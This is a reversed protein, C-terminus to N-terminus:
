LGAQELLLYVEEKNGGSEIVLRVTDMAVMGDIRVPIRELGKELCFEHQFVHEADETATRTRYAASSQSNLLSTLSSEVRQNSAVQQLELRAEILALQLKAIHARLILDSALAPLPTQLIDINDNTKLFSASSAAQLTHSSAPSLQVETQPQQVTKEAGTDDTGSTESSGSEKRRKAFETVRGSAEDVHATESVALLNGKKLAKRLDEHEKISFHLFTKTSPFSYGNRFKWAYGIDAAEKKLITVEEFTTLKVLQPLSSKIHNFLLIKSNNLRELRRQNSWSQTPSKLKNAIPNNDLREDETSEESASEPDEEETRKRKRARNQQSSDADSDLSSDGYESDSDTGSDSDATGFLTEMAEDDRRQKPKPTTSEESTELFVCKLNGDELAQKLETHQAQTFRRITQTSTIGRANKKEPFDYGGRCDWKYGYKAATSPAIFVDDISSVLTNSPYCSQIHQLLLMRSEIERRRKRNDWEEQKRRQKRKRNSAKPSPKRPRSKQASIPPSSPMSIQSSQPAPSLESSESPARTILERTPTAPVATTTPIPRIKLSGRGM